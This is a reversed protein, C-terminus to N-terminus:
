PRIVLLLYGIVLLSYGIVFLWYRIVLEMVGSNTVPNKKSAMLVAMLRAAGISSAPRATPNSTLM